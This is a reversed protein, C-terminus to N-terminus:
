CGRDGYVIDLIGYKIEGFISTAAYSIILTLVVARLPERFLDLRVFITALIIPPAMVLIFYLFLVFQSDM